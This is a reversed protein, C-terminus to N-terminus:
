FPAAKLLPAQFPNSSPGDPVVRLEEGVPLQACFAHFDSRVAQREEYGNNQQGRLVIVCAAVGFLSKGLREIREISRNSDELLRPAPESKRLATDGSVPPAGVATVPPIQETM